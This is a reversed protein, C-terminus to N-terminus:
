LRHPFPDLRSAIARRLAEMAFGNAAVGLHLATVQALPTLEIIGAALYKFPCDPLQSERCAGGIANEFNGPRDRIQDPILCQFSLVNSFCNLISREITNLLTETSLTHRFFTGLGKAQSGM